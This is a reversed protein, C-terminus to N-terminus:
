ENDRSDGRMTHKKYNEDKTKFLSDYADNKPICNFYSYSKLPNQSETENFDPLLFRSRQRLKLTNGYTNLFEPCGEDKDGSNSALEFSINKIVSNCELIKTCNPSETPFKFHKIAPSRFM